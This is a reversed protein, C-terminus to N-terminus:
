PRRRPERRRPAARSYRGTTLTSVSEECGISTARAKAITEAERIEVDGIEVGDAARRRRERVVRGNMGEAAAEKHVRTHALRSLRLAEGVSTNVPDDDAQLGDGM